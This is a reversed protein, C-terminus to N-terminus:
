SFIKQIAKKAYPGNDARALPAQVRWYNLRLAIMFRALECEIIPYISCCSAQLLDNIVEQLLNLLFFLKVELAFEQLPFLYRVLVVILFVKRLLNMELLSPKVELVFEKYYPISTLASDKGRIGSLCVFCTM